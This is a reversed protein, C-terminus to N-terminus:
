QLCRFTVEYSHWGFADSSPRTRTSEMRQGKTGCFAAAENIAQKAAAPATQAQVAVSYIGPGVPLPGSSSACGVTGLCIALAPAWINHGTRTRSVADALVDDTYATM